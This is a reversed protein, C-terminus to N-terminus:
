AGSVFVRRSIYHKVCRSVNSTLKLYAQKGGLLNVSENPADRAVTQRPQAVRSFVVENLFLAFL